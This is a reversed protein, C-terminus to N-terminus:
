VSQIWMSSASMGRISWKMQGRHSFSVGCRVVYLVRHARSPHLLAATLCEFYQESQHPM